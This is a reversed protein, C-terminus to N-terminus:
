EETEEKEPSAKKPAETTIVGGQAIAKWLGAFGEDAKMTVVAQPRWDNPFRCAMSTLYVNGHFIKERIGSAGSDEWWAQSLVKARKYSVSFSEHTTAWDDLTDPACGIEAAMWARSKGRAGWAIVWEDYEQRYESPRGTAKLRDPNRPLGANLAEFYHDVDEGVGGFLEQRRDSSGKVPQAMEGRKISSRTHGPARGKRKPGEAKGGKEGAPKKEAM